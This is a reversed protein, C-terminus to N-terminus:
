FVGAVHDAILWVGAAAYLMRWVQPPFHFPVFPNMLIAVAAYAMFAGRRRRGIAIGAELVSYLCLVWALARSLDHSLPVFASALALLGIAWAVLRLVTAFGGSPGKSKAM